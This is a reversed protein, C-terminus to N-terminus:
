RPARANDRLARRMVKQRNAAYWALSEIACREMAPTWVIANRRAWEWARQERVM